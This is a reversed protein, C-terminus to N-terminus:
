RPEINCCTPQEVGWLVVEDGLQANQVHGVNIAISDMSVRGVIPCVHGNLSVSAHQDLVRPLGDGYGIAVYGINTPEVCVYSAAYGVTDGAKYRKLSILPATVRMALQLSEKEISQSQIPNSGYLMIGPRAWQAQSGPWALIGASNALSRQVNMHQTLSNFSQIQQETLHSDPEDASAFHTIAGFWKLTSDSALIKKFEDPQFGLRGMGTDIKIWTRLQHVNPVQAFWHL